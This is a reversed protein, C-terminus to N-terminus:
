DQYLSKKLLEANKETRYYRITRKSNFRREYEYKKQIFNGCVLIGLAYKLREPNLDERLVLEKATIGPANEVMKLVQMVESYKM